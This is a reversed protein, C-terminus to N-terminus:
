QCSDFKAISHSAPIPACRRAGTAAQWRRVILDVYLPYCVRGTEHAAMLTTGSGQFADTVVNGRKTVDRLADAVLAVPKTTPDCVTERERDFANISAYNWVNTRNRGHRGLEVNKLPTQDSARYVPILEHANRYIGGM